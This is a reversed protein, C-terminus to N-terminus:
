GRVWESWGSREEQGFGVIEMIWSEYSPLAEETICDGILTVFLDYDMERAFTQLEEVDYKFSEASPDPLFDTPQWIKEVPTLYSNIFDEVNKGLTRMVEIRMLKNYM